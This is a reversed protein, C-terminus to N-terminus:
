QKRFTDLHYRGPVLKWAAPRAANTYPPLKMKLRRPLHTLTKNDQICFIKLSSGRHNLDVRYLEVPDVRDPTGVSDRGIRFWQEVSWRGGLGILSLTPISRSTELAIDETRTEMEHSDVIDPWRPCELRVLHKFGSLAELHVAQLRMYTVFAKYKM